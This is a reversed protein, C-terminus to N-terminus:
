YDLFFNPSHSHNKVEKKRVFLRCRQKPLDLSNSVALISTNKSCGDTWFVTFFQNTVAWLWKLEHIFNFLFFFFYLLTKGGVVSFNWKPFILTETRSQGHTSSHHNTGPPIWTNKALLPVHVNLGQSQGTHGSPIQGVASSSHIACPGQSPPCSVGHQACRAGSSPIPSSMVQTSWEWGPWSSTQKSKGRERQQM